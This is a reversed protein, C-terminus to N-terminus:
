QGPLAVLRDRLEGLEARTREQVPVAAVVRRAVEYLLQTHHEEPVSDLVDAAYRLGDAVHRDRILCSARHMQVMGRNTGHHEPYLELARDQARMAAATDGTETLVFSQTHRLRHEPWGFVTQDALVEGPMRETIEEVARVAAVADASRGALALAQARGALVGATGACARGGALAVTEDALAIVQSLPRGDYLGKVADQSRTMVQVDLDGSRDAEARATDWWRRALWTQGTSTMTIALLTALQAAVRHLDPNDPRTALQHQLVALDVSVRELLAAPATAYYSQAYEAAIGQWQDRDPDAAYGLGHRLAELAVAPVTASAALAGMSGVFTRRRVDDRGGKQVVVPHTETALYHDVLVGDADLAADCIEAWQLSPRREGREIQGVYSFDIGAREAFPRLGLGRATRLRRLMAGFTEVHGGRDLTHAAPTTGVYPV